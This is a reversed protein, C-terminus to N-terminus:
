NFQTPSPATAQSTVSVNGGGALKIVFYRVTNLYRVKAYLFLFGRAQLNPPNNNLDCQTAFDDIMGNGNSGMAPDKLSALFGDVLAKADFRTRDDPRISQLRGIISGAAKTQLSRALFNTLRSYEIGNAAGNSSTNRGAIFTYYDGGPTTPPGVIVDVGGREIQSLEADSYTAGTQSRQTAIVGRLQKNLPSQEPSLNGLAGIAIAAPSVLRAQQNFSDYFTPYDGVVLWSSFSDLGNSQRAAITAAYDTGSAAANIAIASESLAFVDQAGWTTADTMDCLAFADIGTRRLAYMGRRPNTDVGILMADTVGSAGDTGGSLTVSAGVSAATTGVGASALVYDSKARQTTGSNIAAAANVWFANGTGAINNFVEPQRGPFSIIVSFTGAQTGAGIQAKIQNGRVGTYRGTLTLCTAGGLSGTAATDTGDSVRVGYYAVASGTQSAAAAFTAIDYKRITPPGFVANCDDPTSFVAPANVPGWSAVGVLGMRNTPTGAIMAQPPIIDVYVGPIDIGSLNLTGDLFTPM